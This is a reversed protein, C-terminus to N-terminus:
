GVLSEQVWGSTVIRFYDFEMWGCAASSYCLLASMLPLLVAPSFHNKRFYNSSFKYCKSLDITVDLSKFLNKM